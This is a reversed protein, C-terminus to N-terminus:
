GSVDKKNNSSHEGGGYWKGTTEWIEHYFLWLSTWPIITDAIPMSSNWEFYKYRFLCLKDGPFVHQLPGEKTSKLLPNIVIVEPRKKLKYKIRVTYKRCLPMPQIQGEWTLVSPKLFRTKSEPFKHRLISAQKAISLTALRKGFYRRSQAM